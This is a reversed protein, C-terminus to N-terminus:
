WMFLIKDILDRVIEVLDLRSLCKIERCVAFKYELTKSRNESLHIISHECERLKYRM